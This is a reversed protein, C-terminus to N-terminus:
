DENQLIGSSWSEPIIRAQHNRLMTRLNPVETILLGSSSYIKVPKAETSWASSIM